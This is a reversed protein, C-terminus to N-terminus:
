YRWEKHRVPLENRQARLERWQPLRLDMLAHFRENHTAEILYKM